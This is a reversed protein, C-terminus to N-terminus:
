HYILYFNMTLYYNVDDVIREKPTDNNIVMYFSYTINKIFQPNASTFNYFTKMM